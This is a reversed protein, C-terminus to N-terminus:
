STKNCNSLFGIGWYKNVGLMNSYENNIVLNCKKEHLSGPLIIRHWGHLIKNDKFVITDFDDSSSNSVHKGCTLIFKLNCDLCHLVDLYVLNSHLMSIDKNISTWNQNIYQFSRKATNLMQTTVHYMVLKKITLSPSWDSCMILRDRFQFLIKVEESAQKWSLYTVNNSLKWSRDYHVVGEQCFNLKKCSQTSLCKEISFSTINIKYNPSNLHLPGYLHFFVDVPRELLVYVSGEKQLDSELVSCKPILTFSPNMRLLIEHQETILLSGAELFYKDHWLDFKVEVDLLEL